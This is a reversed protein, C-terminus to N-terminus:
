RQNNLSVSLDKAIVIDLTGRLYKLKHPLPTGKRVRITKHTYTAGEYSINFRSLFFKM